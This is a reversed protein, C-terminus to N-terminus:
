RAHEKTPPRAATTDKGEHTACRPEREDHSLTACRVYMASCVILLIIWILKQYDEMRHTIIKLWVLQGTHHSSMTTGHSLGNRIKPFVADVLSILTSQRKKMNSIM